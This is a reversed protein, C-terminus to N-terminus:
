PRQAEPRASAALLERVQDSSHQWSHHAAWARATAAMAGRVGPQELEDLRAAVSSVDRNVAWGTHGDNVTEPLGGENSVLVPSGCAQAELSVLGFPEGRALYLTAFAERFTDRLAGDSIGIRTELKVGLATAVQNLRRQEGPEPRPAVIVVPWARRTRAAAEIVLDHGKSPILTGVSLLHRPVLTPGPERFLDPVGLRVIEAHRGYALRIQEASYRSNTAVRTAMATARQDTSRQQWYLAGYIGRTARRRSASAAPEHDVRRPEDCFYLSPTTTNILAAPAQFFRCPNAFIVDPNLSRIRRALEGWARLLNAQDLYRLPPRGIRAFTPARLRVPIVTADDRIPAATELTLEIINDDGLRRMQEALRRRAGGPRLNHIVVVRM